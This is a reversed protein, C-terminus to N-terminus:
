FIRSNIRALMEADIASLYRPVHTEPNRKHNSLVQLIGAHGRRTAVNTATGYHLSVADIDAGHDLLMEVMDQDATFAAAILATEYCGDIANVRAGYELLLHAIYTFGKSVALALPTMAGPGTPEIHAGLDLLVEVTRLNGHQIALLLASDNSMGPGRSHANVDAGHQVLTSVINSFDHGAARYLIPRGDCPANPDYHFLQEDQSAAVLNATGGDERATHSSGSSAALVAEALTEAENIVLLLILSASDHLATTRQWGLENSLKTWTQVPFDCLSALDVAGGKHAIELHDFTHDLVYHIFPYKMKLASLLEAWVPNESRLWIASGQGNMYNDDFESVIHADLDLELYTQCWRAMKANSLASVNPRLSRDINILGDQLLYERVSEHIFQATPPHAQTMEVLGRSSDLVFNEMTSYDVLGQDWAGTTLGGMSARIAFYIEELQLPRSAFLVWQMTVVLVEDPDKLIDAILDQVKTPVAKMEFLLEPHSLGRDIKIRLMRIILVVWLFVGSSRAQIQSALEKKRDCDSIKLKTQVYTSIDEDHQDQEDLRIEESHSITIRPYYRSAFYIYLHASSSHALEGLEEFFDIAERIDNENCEDLADIYFTVVCNRSLGRVAKTLFNRLLGIEWGDQPAHAPFKPRLAPLKRLLQALLSRYMGEVTKELTHGRANFFFSVVADGHSNEEAHEFACKTMTSKGSGAKGKIWLFGHHDNFLSRDRWRIYESTQFLWRCTDKLASDINAIRSDMHDFSLAELFDPRPARAGPGDNVYQNQIFNHGNHVRAHDQAIGNEWRAEARPQSESTSM